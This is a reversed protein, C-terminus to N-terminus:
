VEELHSVDGWTYLHWGNSKQKIVHLAANEIKCRPRQGKPIKLIHCFLTSLVGGHTIVCVPGETPPLTIDEFCALARTLAEERSEGGPFKILAEHERWARAADPYREHIEQWTSGEAEGFSTERLRPDTQYSLSLVNGVIEATAMARGQHSSYLAKPKLVKLRTALACAQREGLPTLPSDNRGQIRGRLNDQTQGHRALILTPYRSM